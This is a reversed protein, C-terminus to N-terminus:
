ADGALARAWSIIEAYLRPASPAIFPHHGADPMVSLRVDPSASFAGPIAKAPGAIDRDGVSLYVPVDITAAEAAINGPLMSQMAAVTLLPGSAAQLATSGNARPSIDALAQGFRLRALRVFDAEARLPQAAVAQEAATLVEPLGRTSFGLLALGAFPRDVAQQLTVIMAGMSHGLGIVTLEPLPPLDASATGHRLQAVIGRVAHAGASAVAGASLTFGDQVASSEGIGAHDFAVTVMGADAMARAFSAGELDFYRQTMGGGPFCFLAVRPNTAFRAPAFLTAGLWSPSEASVPTIDARLKHRIYEAVPM